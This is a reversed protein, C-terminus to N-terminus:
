IIYSIDWKSNEKFNELLLMNESIMLYKKVLKSYIAFVTCFVIHINNIIIIKFKLFM